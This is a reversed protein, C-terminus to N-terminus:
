HGYVCGDAVSGRGQHQVRRVTMYLFAATLKPKLRGKPRRPNKKQKM